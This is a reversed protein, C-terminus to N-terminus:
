EETEPVLTLLSLEPPTMFRVPLISMGLGGTVVAQRGDARVHGYAFRRDRIPVIPRGFFPLWVQGGHTHGALLLEAEPPLQAFIDPSHSLTVVPARGDVQAFARELNVERPTAMDELGVVWLAGKPGEALVAEDMLLRIHTQGILRIMEPGDWWWDHNGMVAYVGMPAHLQAMAAVTTAPDLFFPERIGYSRLTKNEYAYDGVFFVVDPQLAQAAAMTERMRAPSWWPWLPQPDGILLATLPQQLGPLPVVTRTVVLRCPEIAVAYVGLALTLLAVSFLAISSSRPRTARAGTM